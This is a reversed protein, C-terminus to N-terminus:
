FLVAEKRRRRRWAAATQGWINVVDNEWPPPMCGPGRETSGLKRALAISAANEPNIIHIFETWGLDDVVWDIAASTGEYAYGKGWASRILGYGIEPGPWGEPQWPGIRGIWRGTTREIVSFMGFGKLAWSGAMTAMGRWAVSAPQPGGIFRAAQEDAMLGCWPGFDSQLPPRLTLRGTEIAPLNNNL